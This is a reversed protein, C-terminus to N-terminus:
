AFTKQLRKEWGIGVGVKFDNSPMANGKLNHLLIFSYNYESQSM